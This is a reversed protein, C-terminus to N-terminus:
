LRFVFANCLTRLAYRPSDQVAMVQNSLSNHILFSVAWLSRAARPAITPILHDGIHKKECGRAANLQDCPCMPSVLLSLFSPTLSLHGRSYYFLYISLVVFSICRFFFASLPKLPAIYFQKICLSITESFMESLCIIVLRWILRNVTEM